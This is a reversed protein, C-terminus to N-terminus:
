RTSSRKERYLMESKRGTERTKGTDEVLDLALVRRRFARPELRRSEIAECLTRLDSLTFARSLYGFATTGRDFTDRLHARATAIIEKHDFALAPLSDAPFWGVKAADDGAKPKLRDPKVMTVYATTVLRGRPDREPNGFTYVQELSLGAVGTEEELERAACEDLGENEKV